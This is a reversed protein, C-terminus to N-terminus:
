RLVFISKKFAKKVKLASALDMKLQVQMSSMFMTSLKVMRVQLVKCFREAVGTEGLTLCVVM